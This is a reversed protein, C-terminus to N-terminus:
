YYIRRPLTDRLFALADSLHPGVVLTHGYGEVVRAPGPARGGFGGLPDLAGRFALAPVRSEPPAGAFLAVGTLAEPRQRVLLSVAQAGMSHGLLFVRRRDIPYDDGLEELLRDFLAADRMFPETRPTCLIWGEQSALEFLRGGGYAWRFMNEDGQFGHFAVLLPLPKGTALAAAPVQVRYPVDRGGASFARWHEGPLRRYPDNGAELEAIERELEAALREPLAYLQATDEEDPAPGLLRLRAGLTQGAGTLTGLDLAALRAALRERLRTPEESVISWRAAEIGPGEPLDLFLVHDGVPEPALEFPVDFPADAELSISAEAPGASGRLRAAAGPAPEGVRPYLPTVRLRAPTGALRRPPDVRLRLRIAARAVPDRDRGLLGLTLDDLQELTTRRDGAFFALTARDFRRNVEALADGGPRAQELAREFRVLALAVDARTIRAQDPSAFALSPLLLALGAFSRRPM